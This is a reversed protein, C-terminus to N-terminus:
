HKVDFQVTKGPLESVTTVPTGGFNLIAGELQGLTYEWSGYVPSFSIRVTAEDLAEGTVTLGRSLKDYIFPAKLLVSRADGAAALIVKGITSTALVNFDDRGLRRLGERLAVSPYLKQATAATLRVYDAQPYDTFPVYRGLKPPASLRPTLEAFGDGLQGALRAFFM